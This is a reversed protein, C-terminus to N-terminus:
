PQNPKANALPAPVSIRAAFDDVMLLGTTSYTGVTISSYHADTPATMTVEMLAWDPQAVKGPLNGLAERNLYKGDKDYWYIYGYAPHVSTLGEGKIWFSFQYAQGPVVRIGPPTPASFVSVNTSGAPTVFGFAHQGSHASTAANEVLKSNKLNGWWGRPMNAGTNYNPNPGTYGESLIEFGGNWIMNAAEPVEVESKWEPKPSNKQTDFFVRYTQEAPEKSAAVFFVVTGAANDTANYGEEKVFRFPVPAGAKGNELPSVRISNEDLAAGDQKLDRELLRSFDAYVSAFSDDAQPLVTTDAYFHWTSLDDAARASMMSWTCLTCLLALFSVIISRKNMM